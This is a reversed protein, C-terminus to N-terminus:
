MKRIPKKVTNASADFTFSSSTEHGIHREALKMYMNEISDSYKTRNYHIGYASADRVNPWEMENLGDPIFDNKAFASDVSDTSEYNTQLTESNTKHLKLMSAIDLQCFTISPPPLVGSLSNQIRRSTSKEKRNWVDSDNVEKEEINTSTLSDDAFYSPQEKDTHKEYVYATDIGTDEDDDDDDAFLDPSQENIMERSTELQFIELNSRSSTNAACEENGKENKDGNAQLGNGDIASTQTIENSIKGNFSLDTMIEHVDDSKRASIPLDVANCSDENLSLTLISSSKSRRKNRKHSEDDSPSSSPEISFEAVNLLRVNQHMYSLNSAFRKMENRCVIDQDPIEESDYTRESFNSLELYSKGVCEFSNKRNLTHMSQHIENNNVLQKRRKDSSRRQHEVPEVNPFLYAKLRDHSFPYDM